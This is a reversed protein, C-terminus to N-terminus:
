RSISPGGHIKSLEENRKSKAESYDQIEQVEPGSGLGGAEGLRVKGAREEQWEM